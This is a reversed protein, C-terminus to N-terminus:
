ILCLLPLNCNLKEGGNRCRDRTRRARGASGFRCAHQMPLSPGPALRPFNKWSLWANEAVDCVAGVGYRLGVAQATTGLWRWQQVCRRSHPKVTRWPELFANSGIRCPSVRMSAGSHWPLGASCEQPWHSLPMSPVPAGASGVSLTCVAEAKQRLVALPFNKWWLLPLFANAAAFGDVPSASRARRPPFDKWWGECFPGNYAM